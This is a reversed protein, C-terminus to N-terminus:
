SVKPDNRGIRIATLRIRAPKLMNGAKGMSPPLTNRARSAM